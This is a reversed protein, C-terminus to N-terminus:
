EVPADANKFDGVQKLFANASTRRQFDHKHSLRDALAHAKAETARAVAAVGLMARHSLSRGFLVAKPPWTRAEARCEELFEKFALAREDGKERLNPVLVRGAQVERHKNLFLASLGSLAVVLLMTAFVVM